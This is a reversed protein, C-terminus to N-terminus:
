FIKLFEEFHNQAIDYASEETLQEPFDNLILINTDKLIEHIYTYLGGIINLRLVLKENETMVDGRKKNNNWLLKNMKKHQKFCHALIATEIRIDELGTHSEIFKNDCSIYRYLIEATAKVQPTKHKTMYGNAQCWKRYTKQQTIVKCMKLTDWLEIGYPYFYRYRSKTIYRITNNLAQYDFRANHRFIAKINYEKCEKIFIDRIELISKVIRKGKKIDAKYQPIKDRYYASKMQEQMGYFTEFVIFSHEKYINGRKDTINWGIDYVLSDQLNLKDNQM